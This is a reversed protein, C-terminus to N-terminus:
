FGLHQTDANTYNEAIQNLDKSLVRRYRFELNKTLANEEKM